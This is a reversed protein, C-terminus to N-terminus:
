GRWGDLFQRVFALDMMQGKLMRELATVGYFPEINIPKRIWAPIENPHSLLMTLAKHIGLLYSIREITDQNLHVTLGSALKKRWNFLTARAPQGLIILQEDITLQWASSIAFFSELAVRSLQEPSVQTSNLSNNM